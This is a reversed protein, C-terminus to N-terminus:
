TDGATTSPAPAIGTYRIAASRRRECHYAITKAKANRIYAGTWHIEHALKWGSASTMVGISKAHHNAVRRLQPHHKPATATTSDVRSSAAIAIKMIPM